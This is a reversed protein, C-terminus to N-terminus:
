VWLLHWARPLARKPVGGGSESSTTGHDQGINVFQQHDSLVFSSVFCQIILQAFSACWQGWRQKQNAGRAL